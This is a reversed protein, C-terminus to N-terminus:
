ETSVELRVNDLGIWSDGSSVNTFEIGIQHGVSEPVDNAAFSLTYEQIDDTLAVDSSVAPVRTGNDDYYLTMQLTTAAWTIRADVKLEFVDGEAVTYDTLQWVSPDGSMLYATWDGDTPTYGTEVGSDAPPADTSWGSVNDFGLQKETGPLEFSFNEITISESPPPPQYLRIDDIYIIGSGGAQPNNRNGLGIAITNVNALNVGQDAFTQLDITWETWEEVLAANPNDNTVLASGNLAIYMPEAVNCPDGHFWLSLEALDHKTWDRLGTLTLTAESYGVSNDYYLPMSQRGGNVITQEAFPPAEYGVISGNTPSDYGDLWTNFIRNSEPDDPDLDNYFEFDDITVFEPIIIARVGGKTITGDTNFEDIRWLYSRGLAFDDPPVYTTGTQRGRYVGTTDSTDANNVAELDTGFYVDHQSANDGAKWTLSSPVNDIDLTRTPPRLDWAMLPDVRMMTLIEDQTLAKNYVRVDAVDGSIGSGDGRNGNFETAESNAGLFGFRTEDGSGFTSGGFASPEPLGDIYITSTGNEFVGCVHHWFGDDVRTISGYDVQGDSTWVHWGVQGETAVEGNVQLRWYENRDFSIIYQDNPDSTRIWSCVTVETSNADSYSMNKIAVYSTDDTFDLASDSVWSSDSWQPGFLKGHNGHGSWDLANTGAGEDLKWWAVLNPVDTVPIVPMTGFSWLPGKIWEAGNFTDVRWYYTTDANLLGPAFTTELNPPGGIANAVENVDTGFYVTQIKANMGPSWSLLVNPDEFVEGDVPVPEYAATPPIWFSWIKGKIKAGDADVDDIRWYYTTGPVLGDPFPMGPFGISLFTGTQNGVFTSEASNNVDDFNDGIYVDHSAARPGSMWSLAAWTDSYKVGDAPDPNFSELFGGLERLEIQTLARHYIRLDDINGEVPDGGGRSGDFETAESNAGMFGYRVDERRGWTAGGTASPEAEGDIYITATGNDYVGAVHHWLGDDIRTVSGYDLQGGSHYVDWGIQGPGGGSGNVELRWYENRDFSAIYQTGSSETRIWVCVTIETYETGQYFLDKIAVYQGDGTFELAADGIMGPVLWEIDGVLTGDYGNGSSDAATTGQGEDLKWWAVLDPDTDLDAGRIVGIDVLGLLVIFSTFYILKKSM